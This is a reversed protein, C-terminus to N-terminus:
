CDRFLDGTSCFSRGRLTSTRCGTRRRRSSVLAMEVAPPEPPADRDARSTGAVVKLAVPKKPPAM